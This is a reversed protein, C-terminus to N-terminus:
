LSCVLTRRSFNGNWNWCRFFATNPVFIIYKSNFKPFFYYIGYMQRYSYKRNVISIEFVVLSHTIDRQIVPWINM